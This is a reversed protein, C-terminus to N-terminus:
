RFIRQWGGVSVGGGPQWLQQGFGSSVNGSTAQVRMALGYIWEGPRACETCVCRTSPSSGKDKPRLEGAAMKKEGWNTNVCRMQM